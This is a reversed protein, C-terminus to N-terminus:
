DKIRATEDTKMLEWAGKRYEFIAHRATPQGLKAEPHLFEYLAWHETPKAFKVLFSVKM